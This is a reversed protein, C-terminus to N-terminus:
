FKYLKTHTHTHTHTHSHRCLSSIPNSDGCAITFWGFIFDFNLDEAFVALARLWQAIERAVLVKIEM